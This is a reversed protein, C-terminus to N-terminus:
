RSEKSAGDPISPDVQFLLTATQERLSILLPHAGITGMEYEFCIRGDKDATASSTPKGNALGGHTSVLSVETGPEVGPVTLCIACNEKRWLDISAFRDGLNRPVVIRGDSRVVRIQWDSTAVPQAKTTLSVQEGVKLNRVGASAISLGASLLCWSAWILITKM